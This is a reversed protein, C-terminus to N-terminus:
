QADVATSQSEDFLKDGRYHAVIPRDLLAADVAGKFRAVGNVVPASGLHTDGAYFDVKGSPSAVSTTVTAVTATATVLVRSHGASTTNVDIGTTTTRFAVSRLYRNLLPRWVDWTHQGDLYYESPEIGNARLTEALRHLSDASGTATQDQRGSGFFIGGPVTKLRDIQGQTLTPGGVSWAAYYGFLDTNDLMITFSRSGGASFGGFARDRPSTSVNYNQEVFPIVNNRLENAYGQNGGPLFNFDTSIIVMPQATGDQIANELIYHAVGQMTWAISNDGSGHSLYLTPYPTARHPDYGHPLYVVMDHAGPPNTSLPSPYRVQELTGAKNASVPAQYDTDYTPFKKSTPIYITSRVAGPADPYTEQLQWPNAPDDYLDCGTALIDTCDHTFAYRFTGAPLPTTFTWVGDPGKEMPMIQRANVTIDGPQWQAPPHVDAVNQPDAFSWDGYIHVQHVDAPAKYRFTVSYGTPPQDTRTVTPGLPQQNRTAVPGAPGASAAPAAVLGTVATISGLAFLTAFLTLRRKHPPRPILRLRAAFM